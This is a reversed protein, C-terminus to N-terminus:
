DTHSKRSLRASTFLVTATALVIPVELVRDARTERRRDAGAQFESRLARDRGVAHCLPRRSLLRGEPTDVTGGAAGHPVYADPLPRGPLRRHGDRGRHAPQSRARHLAAARPLDFM